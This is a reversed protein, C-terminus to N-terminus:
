LEPHRRTVNELQLVERHIVTNLLNINNLDIIM